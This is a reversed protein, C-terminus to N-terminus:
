EGASQQYLQNHLIVVGGYKGGPIYQELKLQPYGLLSAIDTYRKEKTKIALYEYNKWIGNVLIKELKQNQAITWNVERNSFYAIHKNNSLLTANPPTHQKLWRSAELIYEKKYDMNHVSDMTILVLLTVILGRILPRRQLSTKEWYHDLIFPVYILCLIVLLTCYRELMFQNALTFVLLYLFSILIYALILKHESRKIPLLLAQWRGAFLILVFPIMTARCINLVLLGVLGAASAYIADETASLKLLAKGTSEAVQEFHQQFSLLEDAYLAIHPFIEKLPLGYWYKFTLLVLATLTIAPLLLHTIAKVKSNLRQHMSFLLGFPALALFLIAEFRFLLALSTYFLWKIQHKIVPKHSYRLLELLSLLSLAWFAPDRMISSRYNNIIPHFLIILLAFFQVRQNGGLQKSIAVFSTCLLLYALSTLLLGTSELSLGSIQHVLAIAIPLTPRDFLAFSASIGETLYAEATRLYIIADTNILPDIAVLWASLLLSAITMAKVSVLGEISFKKNAPLV